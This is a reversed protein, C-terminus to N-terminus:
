LHKGGNGSKIEMNRYQKADYWTKKQSAITTVSNKVKKLKDCGIFLSGVVNNIGTEFKIQELGSGMFPASIIDDYLNTNFHANKLSKPIEIEVLTTCNQFAGYNLTELKKSLNEKSINACGSFAYSGIETVSDPIVVM